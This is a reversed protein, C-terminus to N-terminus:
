FYYIVNSLHSCGKSNSAEPKAHRHSPPSQRRAKTTPKRTNKAKTNPNTVNGKKFYSRRGRSSRTSCRLIPQTSEPLLPPHEVLQEDQGPGVPAAIFVHGTGVAVQRTEHAGVGAAAGVVHAGDVDGAEGALVADVVRAQGGYRVAGAVLPLSPLFSPRHGHRVEPPM